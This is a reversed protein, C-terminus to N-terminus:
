GVRECERATSFSCSSKVHLIQIIPCFTMENVDSTSARQIFHSLLHRFLNYKNSQFTDLIEQIKKKQRGSKMNQRSSKKDM